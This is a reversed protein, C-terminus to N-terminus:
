ADGEIDCSNINYGKIKSYYIKMTTLATLLFLYFAMNVDARRRWTFAKMNNLKKKDNKWSLISPFITDEVLSFFCYNSWRGFGQLADNDGQEIRICLVGAFVGMLFVPLRIIPHETALM